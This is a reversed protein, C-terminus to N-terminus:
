RKNIEYIKYTNQTTNKIVDEKSLGKIEAIKEVIYKLHFSNNMLHKEFPESLLVPQKEM